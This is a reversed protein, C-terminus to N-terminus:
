LRFYGLKVALPRGGLRSDFPAWDGLERKDLGVRRAVGLGGVGLPLTKM